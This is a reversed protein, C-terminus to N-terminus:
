REAKALKEKAALEFDLDDGGADLWEEPTVPRFDVGDRLKATLAMIRAVFAEPTEARASTERELREKLAVTVAQTMTEGTLKALDRALQDAERTKISLAM